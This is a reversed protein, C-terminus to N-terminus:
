LLPARDRWSEAPIDSVPSAEAKQDLLSDLLSDLVEQAQTPGLADFATM